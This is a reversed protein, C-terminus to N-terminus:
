VVETEGNALPVREAHCLSCNTVLFAVGTIPDTTLHMGVPLGFRKDLDTESPEPTRNLFGFTASRQTWNAGWIEPYAREMALFFAYPIGTGYPDGIGTKEFILKGSNASIRDIDYEHPNSMMESSSEPAVVPRTASTPATGCGLAIATIVFLSVRQMVM